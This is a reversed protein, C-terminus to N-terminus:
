AVTYTAALVESDALATKIAIAKVTMTDTIVVPVTYETDGADPVDGNTTYYITADLTSCVITVPTNDPVSGPAPFIQPTAVQTITYVYESIESDRMNAKIAIVKLTAGETLTFPAAYTTKGIAPTSGDLTYYIAALATGSSLTINTSTTIAGAPVNSTPTVVQAISYDGSFVVSSTLGDKVAIAKITQGVLMVLPVTYETSEITPTSGDRTYYITSGGTVTSLAVESNALVAGAVPDATPTAVTAVTYTATFVASNAYTAKTGIAKVVTTAPIVIPTTYLTSTASPTDGNTTYRIASGGTACTLAVTSDALVTGAVPNGVPTAVATITYAATLVDSATQYGEYAKAKITMAGTITIPGTYLTSANTPASGNTTYYITSGVTVCALVVTAGILVAGAGPTATPTAVKNFASADAKVEDVISDIMPSVVNLNITRNDNLFTKLDTAKSM